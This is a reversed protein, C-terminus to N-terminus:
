VQDPIPYYLNYNGMGDGVYLTDTSAFKSKDIKLKAMTYLIQQEYFTGLDVVQGDQLGYGTEFNDAWRVLNEADIVHTLYLSSNYKVPIDTFTFNGQLDTTTYWEKTEYN